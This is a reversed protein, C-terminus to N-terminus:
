NPLLNLYNVFYDRLIYHGGFGNGSTSTLNPHQGDSTVSDTTVGTTTLHSNSSGVGGNGSLLYGANRTLVNSNNVAFCDSLEVVGAFGIANSRIWDSVQTFRNNGEPLYGGNGVHITQGAVTLYTGTVRPLPTAYHVRFGLSKFNNVINTINGIITAASDLGGIDNNAWNCLIDTVGIVTLAAQRRTFNAPLNNSAAQGSIAFNAHPFKGSLARGNWGTSGISDNIGDGAYALMSDGVSCFARKVPTGSFGTAKMGIPGYGRRATAPTANVITGSMTKDVGTAFDALEGIGTYILYGQVWKNAASVSVYTRIWYQAGAPIAANLTIEDSAQLADVALTASSSGSNFTVQQFTGAPYEISATITIPNYGAVENTASCYWNPFYLIAKTVTTGTQNFLSLKTNSNTDTGDSGAYGNLGMLNLRNCMLLSTPVPLSNSSTAKVVGPSLKGKGWKLGM